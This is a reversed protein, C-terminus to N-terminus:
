NINPAHIPILLSFLPLVTWSLSIDCAFARFCFSRPWCFPSLLHPTPFITDSGRLPNYSSIFTLPHTMCLQKTQTKFVALFWQFPQLLHPLMILKTSQDLYESWLWGPGWGTKAVVKTTTQALSAPWTPVLVHQSSSYNIATDLLCLVHQPPFYIYLYPPFSVETQSKHTNFAWDPGVRQLGM